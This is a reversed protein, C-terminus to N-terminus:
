SVVSSSLKLQNGFLIMLSGGFITSVSRLQVKLLMLVASLDLTVMIVIQIMLLTIRLILNYSVIM